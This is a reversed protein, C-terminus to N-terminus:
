GCSHMMTKAHHRHAVEFICKHKPKYFRRYQEFGIMPGQQTGFDDHICVIDIQGAAAELVRDLFEVYFRTLRHFCAEIFPPDLLMDMLLRELGILNAVHGLGGINFLNARSGVNECQPSLTNYDFWDAQPWDHQNLDDIMANALPRSIVEDNRGGNFPVWRRKYGYITDWSGDPYCDPYLVKAPGGVYRPYVGYLCNNINGFTDVDLVDLLENLEEVGFHSRLKDLVDDTAKFGVPLVDPERRDIAALVRERRKM